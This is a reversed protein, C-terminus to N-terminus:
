YRVVQQAQEQQENSKYGVRVAWAKIYQIINNYIDDDSEDDDSVDMVM